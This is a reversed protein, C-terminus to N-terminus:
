MTRQLLSACACFPRTIEDQPPCSISVSSCNLLLLLRIREHSVSKSDPQERLSRSGTQYSQVPCLRPEYIPNLAALYFLSM